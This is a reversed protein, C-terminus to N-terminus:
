LLLVPVERACRNLVKKEKKRRKKTPDTNCMKNDKQTTNKQKTQRQGTDQTGPTALTM